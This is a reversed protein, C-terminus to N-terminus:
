DVRQLDLKTDMACVPNKVRALSRIIWTELNKEDYIRDNARVDVESGVRGIAKRIVRPVGTTETSADQNVEIISAIVGTDVITNTDTPDGWEDTTQGRYITVTTTASAIM